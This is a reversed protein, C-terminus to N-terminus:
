AFPYKTCKQVLVFLGCYKDKTLPLGFVLDIGVEDFIGDVVIAQAPHFKAPVKQHRQCTLCASVVRKVDNEMNKWYYLEQIRELTTVVMFHGLLHAKLIIGHRDAIRPVLLYNEDDKNKRFFLKFSDGDSEM